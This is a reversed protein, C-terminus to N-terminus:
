STLLVSTIQGPLFDLPDGPSSGVRAARFKSPTCGIVATFSHDLHAQDHYGAATTVQAFPIGTEQLRSTEQMRVVLEGASNGLLDAPDVDSDVFEVMPLGFLARPKPARVSKKLPDALRCGHEMGHVVAGGLGIQGTM